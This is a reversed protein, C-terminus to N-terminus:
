FCAVYKKTMENKKKLQPLICTVEFEGISSSPAQLEFRMLHM